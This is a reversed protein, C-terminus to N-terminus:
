EQEAFYPAPRHLPLRKEAKVPALNDVGEGIVNIIRGLVAKGVPVTIPQGTDVVPTGRVLGDTASMAITRVKNDGLHSAVELTIKIDPIGKSADGKQDITVANLIEPLKGEFEVDVVASIVQSVKGINSM